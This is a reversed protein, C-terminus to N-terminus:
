RWLSKADQELRAGVQLIVARALKHARRAAEVPDLGQEVGFLYAGALMDGAGTLDVPDCRQTPVHQGRGNVGLLLGHEGRTTIAQPVFSALKNFAKEVDEIEAWAQAEFENAFVVDASRIVEDCLSRFLKPIFVESLSFAIKTGHKRAHRIANLVAQQGSEPNALMYGEIFIWKARSILDESVHDSALEKTVALSARMTREGDPAILCVCTGTDSGHLRRVALEVGHTRMDAEYADGHEDNGLIGIFGAKGGLQAFGIVSNAISGGSRMTMARKGLGKFMKSQESPEVLAYSGKPVGLPEFEHEEVNVLLDLLANGMGVLQLDKLKKSKEM